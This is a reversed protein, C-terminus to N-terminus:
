FSISKFAKKHFDKAHKIRALWQNVLSKRLETTEPKDVDTTTITMEEHM